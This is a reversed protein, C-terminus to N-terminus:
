QPSKPERPSDPKPHERLLLTGLERGV